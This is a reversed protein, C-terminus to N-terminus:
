LNYADLGFEDPDTSNEEDWYNEKSRVMAEHLEAVTKWTVICRWTKGMCKDCQEVTCIDQDNWAENYYIHDNNQRDM